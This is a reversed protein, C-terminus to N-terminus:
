AYPKNFFGVNILFFVAVLVIRIQLHESHVCLPVIIVYPVPFRAHHHTCSKEQMVLSRKQEIPEM